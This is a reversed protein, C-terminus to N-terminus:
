EGLLYGGDSVRYVSFHKIRRFLQKLDYDVYTQLDKDTLSENVCKGGDKGSGSGGSGNGSTTSTSTACYLIVWNKVDQQSVNPASMTLVVNSLPSFRLAPNFDISAGSGSTSNVTVTLQISRVEPACPANWFTPGYGSSGLACVAGAPIELRSGGMVLTNAVKPDILVNYTGDQSMASFSGSGSPGSSRSAVRSASLSQPATAQDLSDVSCASSAVLIGGLAATALVRSHYFLKM